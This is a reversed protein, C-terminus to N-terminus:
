GGPELRRWAIDDFGIRIQGQAIFREEADAPFVLVDVPAARRLGALQAEIRAVHAALELNWRAFAFHTDALHRLLYRYKVPSVAGAEAWFAPREGLQQFLDPKYRRGASTEVRLRAYEPLYLAWLLAKMVIHAPKEQAQKHLVLTQGQARFSYKRVLASM